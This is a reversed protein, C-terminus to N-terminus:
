IMTFEAIASDYPLVRKPMVIFYLVTKWVPQVMKCEWWQHILIETAGCVQWCNTNDTKQIKAMKIPIFYYRM